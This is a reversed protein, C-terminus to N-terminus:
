LKNEEQLPLMSAEQYVKNSERRWVWFIMGTFLFVFLLLAFNTLDIWQFYSLVEQKM